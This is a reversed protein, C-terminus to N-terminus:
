PTMELLKAILREIENLLRGYESWNGTQSAERAGNFAAELALVVEAYTDDDDDGPTPDTPPAIGVVKALAVAPHRQHGLAGKAPALVGHVGQAEQYEPPQGEQERRPRRQRQGEKLVGVDPDM